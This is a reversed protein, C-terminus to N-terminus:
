VALFAAYLTDIGGPMVDILTTGSVFQSGRM